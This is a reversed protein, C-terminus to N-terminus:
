IIFCVPNLLFIWHLLKIGPEKESAVTEWILVRRNRPAKTNNEVIIKWKRRSLLGIIPSKEDLWKGPHCIVNNQIGQRKRVRKLTPPRFWCILNQLQGSIGKIVSMNCSPLRKKKKFFALISFKIIHWPNHKGSHLM